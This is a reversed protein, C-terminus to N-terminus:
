PPLSLAPAPRTLPRENIPLHILAALIGFAVGAWWMGDYSGTRDYILGGLWIGMFSGIQHSLFVIGFLMSMYQIGFVQAVIGMTLPVTSLWLIGMAAAFCLVVLPTKPSLLLILIVVARSFYIWSLGCKKSWRQGALGSAFSGLINLMGILSISYAGIAPDLGLDRVYAPFHVTIFAVHFGCVFFGATLLLYGRHRLAENIADQLTQNADASRENDDAGSASNPLCLVMPILLLSISALLLLATYWGYASIFGQSLPPFLVMGFSGAATGIGFVFSRRNAGVVRVMAAMTLTFATFAVGLGILIGCTLQLIFGSQAHAMGLIGACYLATGAIIVGLPGNKDVLAGAFPLGIGWLLNQLAMALGFTERSWGNATTMPDLFLGFTLRIGFGTMSILCGAILVVASARWAKM